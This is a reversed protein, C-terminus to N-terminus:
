DQLSDRDFCALNERSATSQRGDVKQDLIAFLKDDVSSVRAGGSLLDFM